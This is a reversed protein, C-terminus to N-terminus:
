CPLHPHQAHGPPPNGTAARNTQPRALRTLASPCSFRTPAKSCGPMRSGQRWGACVEKLHHGQLMAQGQRQWDM